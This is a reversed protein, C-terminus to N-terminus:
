EASPKKQQAPAKKTQPLGAGKHRSENSISKTDCGSIAASVQTLFNKERHSRRSSKYNPTNHKLRKDMKLENKHTTDSLTGIENKLM